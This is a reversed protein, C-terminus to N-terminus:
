ADPQSPTIAVRDSTMTWTQRIQDWESESVFARRPVFTVIGVDTFVGVGARTWKTRKVRQRPFDFSRGSFCVGMRDPAFWAAVPRTPRGLYSAGKRTLWLLSLIILTAIASVPTAFKAVLWLPRFGLHDLVYDKLDGGNWSTLGSVLAHTRHEIYALSLLGTLFVLVCITLLWIRGFIHALKQCWSWFVNLRSVSRAGTPASSPIEHDRFDGPPLHQQLRQWDIESFAEQSLVVPFEDTFKFILGPKKRSGSYQKTTFCFHMDDIFVDCHSTPFWTGHYPLKLHEHLNYAAAGASGRHLHISILLLFVNIGLPISLACTLGLIDSSSIAGVFSFFVIAFLGLSIPISYFFFSAWQPQAYIRRMQLSDLQGQFKIGQHEIADEFATDTQWIDREIPPEYPNM